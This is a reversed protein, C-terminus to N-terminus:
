GEEDVGLIAGWIAWFEKQLCKERIRLVISPIPGIRPTKGGRPPGCSLEDDPRRLRSLHRSRWPRGRPWPRGSVERAEPVWVGHRHRPWGASASFTIQQSGDGPPIVKFLPSAGIEGGAPRTRIGPLLVETSICNNRVFRWCNGGQSSAFYAPLYMAQLGSPVR